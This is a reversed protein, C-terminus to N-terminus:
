EVAYLILWTGSTWDATIGTPCYVGYGQYTFTVTTSPIIATGTVTLADYVGALTGAAINIVGYLIGPRGATINLGTADDTVIKYKCVSAVHACGMTALQTASRGTATSQLKTGSM